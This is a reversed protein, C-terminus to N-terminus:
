KKSEELSLVLRALSEIEGPQMERGFGPMVGAGDRIISEISPLDRSYRFPGSVLNPPTVAMMRAMQTNARGDAGHCSSCYQAYNVEPAQEARLGILPEAQTSPRNELYSRPTKPVFYIILACLVLTTVLGIVFVKSRFGSM